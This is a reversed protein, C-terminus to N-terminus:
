QGIVGTRNPDLVTEFREKFGSIAQNPFGSILQDLLERNGDVVVVFQLVIFRHEQFQLLREANPAPGHRSIGKICEYEVQNTVLRTLHIRKPHLVERYGTTISATPSTIIVHVAVAQTITILCVQAGIGVVGVGVPVGETVAVLDVLASIRHITGIKRFAAAAFFLFDRKRLRNQGGQQALIVQM